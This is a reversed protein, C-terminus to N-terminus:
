VFCTVSCNVFSCIVSVGTWWLENYAVAVEIYSLLCWGEAFARVVGVPVRVQLRVALIMVMKPVVEPLSNSSLFHQVLLVMLALVLLSSTLPLM